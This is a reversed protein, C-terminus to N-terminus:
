CVYTNVVSDESLRGPHDITSTDCIIDIFADDDCIDVVYRLDNTKLMDDLCGVISNLDGCIAVNGLNEYKAICVHWGGQM